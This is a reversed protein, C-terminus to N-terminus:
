TLEAPVPRRYPLSRGNDFYEHALMPQQFPPAVIGPPEDLGPNPDRYGGTMPMPPQPQQQAWPNMSMGSLSAAAAAAAAAAM